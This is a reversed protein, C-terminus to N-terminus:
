SDVISRYYFILWLLAILCGQQTLEGYEIDFPSNLDTNTEKILGFRTIICRFYSKGVHSIPSLFPNGWVLDMLFRKFNIFFRQFDRM